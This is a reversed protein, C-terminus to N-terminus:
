FDVVLGFAMRHERFVVGSNSFAYDGVLAVHDGLLYALRTSVDFGVSTRPEFFRSREGRSIQAALGAGAEFRFPGEATGLGLDIRAGPALFTKPSFYGRVFLPAGDLRSLRVTSVDRGFALAVVQLSPRVYTLRRFLGFDRAMDRGVNLVLEGRTNSPISDGLLRDVRGSLRVDTRRDFALTLGAGAGLAMVPGVRQGSRPDVIGAYGLLSEAIPTRSVGAFARVRNSPRGEVRALFTIEGAATAGVEGALRLSDSAIFKTGVAGEVGTLGGLEDGDYRVLAARGFVRTRDSTDIAGSLEARLVTASGVVREGDTVPTAAEEGSRVTGSVLVAAHDDFWRDLLSVAALENARAEARARVADASRSTLGRVSALAHIPRDDHLLANARGIRPGEASPDALAAVDFRELAAATNGARLEIWGLLEEVEASTGTRMRLPELVALADRDRDLGLYARALLSRGTPDIAGSSLAPELIAAARAPDRQTLHHVFPGDLYYRALSVRLAGAEEPWRDVLAQAIPARSITLDMWTLLAILEARLEPDSSSVADLSEYLVLADERRDPMSALLRARRREIERTRPRMAELVVLADARRSELSALLDAYELRVGQDERIALAEEFGRLAAEHDGARFRARAAELIRGARREPEAARERRALALEDRYKTNAPFEAVLRAYAREAEDFRETQLLALAEAYRSTEDLAAGLLRAEEFLPLAEAGRQQWVVVKALDLLVSADRGRRTILERYEREADANRGSWSLIDALRRRSPTDPSVRVLTALLETARPWTEKKWSYLTGLRELATPEDPVLTLAQEYAAVARDFRGQREEARGLEIRVAVSMPWRRALRELEDIAKLVWGRRLYDRAEILSPEQRRQVSTVLAISAGAAALSTSALCAAIVLAALARRAIREEPRANKM